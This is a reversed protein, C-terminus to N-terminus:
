LVNGDWECGRLCGLVEKVKVRVFGQAVDDMGIGIIVEDDLFGTGLDEHDHDLDLHTNEHNSHHNSQHNPRHSWTISPTYTFYATSEESKAQDTHHNENKNKNKNGNKNENDNWNLGADIDGDGDVDLGAEPGLDLEVDGSRRGRGGWFDEEVGWPRVRERGFVFPWRSVGVVRYPARAEWVLVYREYRMPLDIENSFKRHIISFHLIAGSLRLHESYQMNTLSTVNIHKNTSRESHDAPICSRSHFASRTCLILRLSSTGQHWHGTNNLTDATHSPSSLNFCPPEHPSTLNSTTLAHSTLHALTRGPSPLHSQPNSHPYPHPPPNAPSQDPTTSRSDTPPNENPMTRPPLNHPPSTHHSANFTNSRNTLNTYLTPNQDYLETHEKQPASQNLLPKVLGIDNLIGDFDMPASSEMTTPAAEEDLSSDSPEAASSQQEASGQHYYEVEVGKGMANYQVWMEDESPFFLVWNKEVDARSGRPNKTLETLRPYGMRAGLSSFDMVKSRTERGEKRVGDEDGHGKRKLVENLPEFVMRLDQIWLGICGYASGSNVEILPEGRGSWFVRPDHFGPIDPFIKWAGTCKKAPTPPINIKEPTTQCRMGGSLGLLAIDDDSCTPYYSSSGSPVCINAFCIHSEQHTGSTVLRSILLYQYPTSSSSSVYSPLPLIAPNFYQNNKFEDVNAGAAAPVISINLVPVNPLRIHGTHPNPRHTCRSLVRAVHPNPPLTEISSHYQELFRDQLSLQPSLVAEFTFTHSSKASSETIIHQFIDIRLLSSLRFYLRISAIIIFLLLAPTTLRRPSPISFM